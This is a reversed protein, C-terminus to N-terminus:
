QGSNMGWGLGWGLICVQQTLVRSTGEGKMKSCCSTVDSYDSPLEVLAGM